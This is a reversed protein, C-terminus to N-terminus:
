IIADYKETLHERHLKKTLSTLRKISGSDILARGKIGNVEVVVVPFIAESKHYTTMAINSAPTEGDPKDCISTHHRKDCKRCSTKSPCDSAKHNGAACNFCLRKKSLIQKRASTLTVKTCENAKHEDNDCYTCGRPNLRQRSVHFLKDRKRPHEDDRETTKDIPNRRCWQKLAEVPKVFDWNEWDTDTRVLDGRISSLKDLTMSVAGNVRELNKLTELAQVCYTLKESFEHIKKMNVSNITPFGLIERTYVKVIESEKGFKDELISKARNYGEATFPLAEVMKRVNPALLEHLYAFKTVPPISSKEINETFQGWFRRWDMHSGNFQLIVLKPLKAQMGIMNKSAQPSEETNQTVQLKMKTGHLKVEFQLKREREIEELKRKNDTLWEKMLRVHEDAANLKTEIGSSWEATDEKRSVKEAEVTLRLGEVERLVSRLTTQHRTISEENSKSLNREHV